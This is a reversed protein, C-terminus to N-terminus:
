RGDRLRRLAPMDEVTEDLRPSRNVAKGSVEIRQIQELVEEARENRGLASTGHTAGFWFRRCSKFRARDGVVSALM